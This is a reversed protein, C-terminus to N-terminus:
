DRGGREKIWDLCAMELRYALEDADWNAPYAHAFIRITIDREDVEEAPRIVKTM